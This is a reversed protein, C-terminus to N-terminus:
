RPSPIRKWLLWAAFGSLVLSPVMYGGNYLISYLWVNQGEPVYSSFFVVGSLVHCLLRSLGAIFIGWIPRRQFLGEIGMAAFALPYDLVAQLPHVIYGGFILQFLGSLAGVGIGWKFGHRYAFFLLPAMELTISGGQPLTFIRLNSLVVSLAVCLAGEVLVKVKNASRKEGQEVMM